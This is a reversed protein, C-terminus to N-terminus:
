KNNQKTAPYAQFIKGNLLKGNKKKNFGGWQKFFFAVNNDASLRQLEEVWEKQIPRSRAGSEGGVILWDINELNIGTLSSLLPEASIFKTKAGCARLLDARDLYKDSEITVGMWINDTWTIKNNLEVLREPRKTLVQFEHQPCKNMTDFIQLISKESIKEHFIDSMSNVFVMKPTKWRFPLEILDEHVTPTFGNIYRINGMAQLRKAFSAAYCNLCGDSIKSCGTIPNWTVETWEIKSNGM